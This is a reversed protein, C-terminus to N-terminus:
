WRASGPRDGGPARWPARTRTRVGLPVSRCEPLRAWIRRTPRWPSYAGWWAAHVARSRARPTHRSVASSRPKTVNVAAAAATGGVTARAHVPQQEDLVVVLDAQGEAEGELVLAVHHLLGAVAAGAQGGEVAVLGVEHEDVQAQGVDLAEVDAARHPRLLMTGIMITVAWVSM